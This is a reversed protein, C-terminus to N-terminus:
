LPHKKKSLFEPHAKKRKPGYIPLEGGLYFCGGSSFSPMDKRKGKLTPTTGGRVKCPATPPGM